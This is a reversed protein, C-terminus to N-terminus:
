PDSRAAALLEDFADQLKVSFGHVDPVTVADATIGMHVHSGYNACACTVGTSLALPALGTMATMRCDGLYATFEPFRVNTLYINFPPPKKSRTSLKQFPRSFVVWLGFRALPPPSKSQFTRIFKDMVERAGQEKTKKTYAAIERMREGPDMKGLPTLAPMFALRNGWDGKEDSARTDAAQYVRCYTGTTDFGIEEAIRHMAGTLISLLVDNVTGGFTNKVLRLGELDFSVSGHHRRGSLPANFPFRIGPSRMFEKMTEGFAKSRQKDAAKRETNGAAAEAPKRKEHRTFGDRVARSM